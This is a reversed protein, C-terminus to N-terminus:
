SAGAADDDSNDHTGAPRRRAAYGDVHVQDGRELALAGEPVDRTIASGAGTVAHPGVQVPAVLMTDSGIFAGDGIVTRHKDRGDFNCTITGAGVNVDRGIQADGIYSLHPVKSGEGVTSKKIEVFAGAKAARELRAGPRLYSFPGVTAGPGVSAELLVSSSVTAGDEVVADVLRSDPGVTVGSGIRTAGELHTNPLIVTDTGIRVDAGIYTRAPDVLTVGARLHEGAIRARLVAGAAALQARDNVGAISAEDAEIADIGLESLPAVVDTLYEEGQANGSGLTALADRLAGAPFAYIGANVEDIAREGEDADRHEVIRTVKGGADRVVRGYGTPDALRATLMAVGEAPAALPALIDERLLPTDGPLVLVREAGDLVGADFAVRVAHGTGRQEAQTVTVLGPLEAARAEAAVADAQHGVVVVVRELGLPRLAELVWRLMTRGAVPHLVKALESHFRTGKGAALVVAATGTM